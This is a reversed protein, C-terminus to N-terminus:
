VRATALLPVPTLWSNYKKVKGVLIDTYYEAVRTTIPGPYQDGIPIDDLSTIPTIESGTGCLFAEDSGYFEARAIDRVEVPMGLDEPLVKLLTDRTVSELISATVPPTIIKGDRVAMVCAGTSESICGRSDLFLTGDFGLRRSERSALESNAYNALAKAQTPLADTAIRRWSSVNFRHKDYFKPNEKGLKSDFTWLGIVVHPQIPNTGKPWVRLHIYVNTKFGNAQIAEKTAETLQEKTYPIKIGCVAASRWLRDMHAKARFINQPGEGLINEAVHAKIGEFFGLYIPELAPVLADKTEIVQGNMWCYKSGRFSSAM